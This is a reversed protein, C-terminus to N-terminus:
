MIALQVIKQMKLWRHLQQRAKVLNMAGTRHNQKELEMQQNRTGEVRIMAELRTALCSVAMTIHLELTLTMWPAEREQAQQVVSRIALEELLLPPKQDVLITLLTIILNDAPETKHLERIIPLPRSMVGVIISIARIHLQAHRLCISAIKIRLGRTQLTVLQMQGEEQLLVIIQRHNSNSIITPVEVAMIFITMAPAM